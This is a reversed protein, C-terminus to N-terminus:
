HQGFRWDLEIWMQRGYPNYNDPNYYPWSVYSPDTPPMKNLINNVIASLRLKPTVQYTVSGNYLMWPPVTGAPQGNFGPLDTGYGNYQAAYNPSKGYRTGYLTTSWKGIDWTVSANAITKFETSYPYIDPQTLLNVPQDGASAQFSHKLTVNYAASFKLSGFKGLGLSYDLSAMIGSVRERAINVPLVTVQILSNPEPATPSARQIQALTAMCTPSDINLQGTRCAAEEKLLADPSQLEVENAIDINYYDTKVDFNDTPSWVVGFGYSKATVSKLDPNGTHLQFFSQDNYYPCDVLPGGVLDCRYYDTFGGPFSGSKGGFVYAMDPARFATAYNGRILLSSFPRFELGLRYTARGDTGGGHNSYQDYRASLDATLMKFLPARFEGGYAWFNRAGGGSTGTLGYFDGAIVRPDTPNSWVQEGYQFVGAFGANGGPLSFLDDDSVQVNASQIWTVNHDRQVGNFSAYEAPTVPKYLNAINPDYIPYGSTTGLQPGMIENQFFANVKDTLLWPITENLDQQSRAFFVDYHLNSNSVNGRVGSWMNYTRELFTEGNAHWTGTEEPSFYRWLSEFQGTAGNWFIGNGNINPEWYQFGYMADNMSVTYLVNAYLEADDNIRYKVNLYGAGSRVKNKLTGWGVWDPSGCYYGPGTPAGTDPDFPPGLNPKSWRKTTGHYLASVANCQDGPDVYVSYGGPTLYEYVFNDNGYRLSPDPNALSSAEISRQYGWIPNQHNFQLGYIMSFKNKDFGGVFEVRENQGGGKTYGGTRVNLEYGNIHQKLVVNIVGAIASSGYISSLNGPVIDIREVMGMPIDGVDVFNSQGQYLLPYSTVPHGDILYLTFGPDLGLLSITEAGPTFGLQSAAQNDQVSGTALPQARLATYVSGFGSNELQEPRLTITPVFTQIQSQPILSGTVTVAQLTEPNAKPKPKPKPTEPPPPPTTTQPAPDKPDAHPDLVIVFTTDDIQRPSLGTHRLLLHLAEAAAFSGSLGRTTKGAVLAPAYDLHLRGQRSLAELAQGLNGPAIAYHVSQVTRTPTAACAPQYWVGGLGVAVLAVALALPKRRLTGTRCARGRSAFPQHQSRVNRSTM